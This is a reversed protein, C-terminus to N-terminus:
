LRSLPVTVAGMGGSGIFLQVGGLEARGGAFSYGAPPVVRVWYGGAPLTIDSIGSANTTATMVVPGSLDHRLEVTVNALGAQSAADLVTTVLRGTGLFPETPTSM